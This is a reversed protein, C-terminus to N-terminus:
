ATRRERSGPQEERTSGSSRSNGAQPHSEGEHQQREQDSAFSQGCIKCRNSKETPHNM